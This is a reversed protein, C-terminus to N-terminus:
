YTAKLDLLRKETPALKIAQDLNSQAAEKNGMEHNLIAISLFWNYDAPNRRAGRESYDLAKKLDGSLYYADSIKKLLSYDNVDARYAKEYYLRASSYDNLHSYINGLERYILKQYLRLIARHEENFRPDNFAPLNAEAMKYVAIADTFKNENVLTQAFDLYTKPWFPTQNLVLKFYKEALPYNKLASNIKAKVYINEYGSAVLKKDMKVLVGRAIRKTQEDKIGAYSESLKDGLFRNYFAQNVPNAKEQNAYESLLFASFYQEQGLAYYLKNFYHDAVLTRFEYVVSSCIVFFFIIFAGARLYPEALPNKKNQAIENGTGSKQDINIVVLLALFLWFYIEGAVIPFSFLLSFLYAAAGLALALSLASMKKQKINEKVLSFYYYYLLTFLCLGAFGTALVIDLILNHAKDTTAGIDGYIGWDPQYYNIFVEGGNDLGYGLIPKKIIADSAAQYFNIRAAMSGNKFDLLSSIRGPILYNIGFLGLIIIAFLGLSFVVKYSRKIKLFFIIYLALLLVTLGLAIVGGRSSTFFLCILQALFALAFFFRAILKKQKFVLYASLPIVLLLWSALFNPQGFSAITRKTFLPNEPWSLFDIGLIQLIGYLAVLFGSAVAVVIIREIRQEIRPKDNKKFFYNDVTLLNYSLLAFWLAYYLYSLYGSQRDYSGFFSQGFNISAILTLGLGLIFIFPVFLYKKLDTKARGIFVFKSLTLFFLALVLIRFIATKSLEFVNYTSFAFSFYLPIIFIIALYIFEIMLDLIERIKLKFAKTM